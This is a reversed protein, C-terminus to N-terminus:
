ERALQEVQSCRTVMSPGERACGHINLEEKFELGCPLHKWVEKVPLSGPAFRPGTSTGAEDRAHPLALIWGQAKGMETGQPLFTVM